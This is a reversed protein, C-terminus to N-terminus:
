IVSRLELVNLVSSWPPAGLPDALRASGSCIQGHILILCRLILQSCYARYLAIGFAGRPWARGAVYAAAVSRAPELESSLKLSRTNVQRVRCHRSSLSFLLLLCLLRQFRLPSPSYELQM